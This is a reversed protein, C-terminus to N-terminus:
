EGGSEPESSKKRTGPKKATLRGVALDYAAEAETLRITRRATFAGASLASVGDAVYFTKTQM